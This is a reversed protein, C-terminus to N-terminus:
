VVTNLKKVNEEQYNKIMYTHEQSFIALLTHKMEWSYKTKQIIYM